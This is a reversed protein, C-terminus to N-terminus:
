RVLNQNWRREVGISIGRSDRYWAVLCEISCPAPEPGTPLVECGSFDRHAPRSREAAMTVTEEFGRYMSLWHAM